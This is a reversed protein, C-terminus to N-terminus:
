IKQMTSRSPILAQLMLSLVVCAACGILNYWLYSFDLAPFRHRLLYLAFILTQAAVASWFVATGGVRKLFFAVLFIGLVVGYFISGIINIAEILNEAFGAFLAFAIAVFGWLATFRKAARVNRAEDHAALPRFHRWLDITTTTGLANLEGAKSGLAAAIMVAILLGIVGHPLQDLIFGIFVYDSDKTKALPDAAILAARAENRVAVTAAQAELMAARAAPEAVTDGHNRADLWARIKEEKVAHLAANKEELARFTAANSGTAHQQWEVRNYFVPAPQFQYFVFLLAGLLLIFFQMPIKLLANFMLGLRGERLAAGGIYRQVQSQDTGFYSLSLFLGGFLGTWLTYRKDPNLSFDVAQLKGMAGAVQAAGNFGLGDPLRALLILFATVMGGFIVGMQWKQTLSVAESGGTVTYIIVLLGTTIITLDLRWGLVTALIIAPAYITVGAALGRQLLFLGAGLLRTKQDFRQGLFEYATYVGLKRYIPLFVACVIILALPLGFYNQVFGIGSEFGQGPISLFTIASAQTAMVSIGITGWRTTKSGKLYTDLHDTHRTHWAGYAAIGVMTVLLVIWDITNM